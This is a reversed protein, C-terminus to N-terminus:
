AGSSPSNNSQGERDSDPDTDESLSSEDNYDNENLKQGILEFLIRRDYESAKPDCENIMRDVSIGRKVHHGGDKERAEFKKFASDTM